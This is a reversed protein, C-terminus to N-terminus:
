TVWYGDDISQRTSGSLSPLADGVEAANIADVLALRSGPRFTIILHVRVLASRPNCCVFRNAAARVLPKKSGSARSRRAGAEYAIFAAFVADVIM